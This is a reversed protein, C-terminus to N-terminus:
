MMVPWLVAPTKSHGDLEGKSESNINCCLRSNRCSRCHNQIPWHRHESDHIYERVSPEKILSRFTINSINTQPICSMGAKEALDKEANYGLGNSFTSPIGSGPIAEEAPPSSEMLLGAHV